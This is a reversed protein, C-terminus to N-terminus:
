HKGKRLGKLTEAFRARRAITPNSSHTAAEIKAEPIKQGQPVGLDEHLAGPHKIASQIFKKARRGKQETVSMRAM